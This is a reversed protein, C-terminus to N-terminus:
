AIFTVVQWQKNFVVAFLAVEGRVEFYLCIEIREFPLPVHGGYVM